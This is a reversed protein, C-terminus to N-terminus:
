LLYYSFLCGMIKTGMEIYNKHYFLYEPLPIKNHLNNKLVKHLKHKNYMDGNSM